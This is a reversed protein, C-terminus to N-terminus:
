SASAPLGRFPLAEQRILGGLKAMEPDKHVVIANVRIAAAVVFADAFSIKHSAKWEAAVACSAADSHLWSIPLRRLDAIIQRALAPGADYTKSYQVETLSVFCGHLAIDGAIAQAVLERVRDSGPEADTLAMLASTDLLFSDAM